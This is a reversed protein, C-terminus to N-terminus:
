ALQGGNRKSIAIMDEVADDISQTHEIDYFRTLFDLAKFHRLYSYAVKNTLKFRDAFAGICALLYEIKYNLEKSM